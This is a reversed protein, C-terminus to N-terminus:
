DGPKKPERPHFLRWERIVWVLAGMLVLGLLIHTEYPRVKGLVEELAEGFLFGLGLYFTAFALAAAGNFLHFVLPRLRHAGLLVPLAVRLGYAFRTVFAAARGWRRFLLTARARFARLATSSRILRGGYRRGLWFYLSDGLAGGVVALVFTPVPELYGRSLGYGALILVTEGELISGVLVAWYGYSNIWHEWM